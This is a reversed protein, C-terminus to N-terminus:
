LREATATGFQPVDLHSAARLQGVDTDEFEDGFTDMETMQVDTTLDM